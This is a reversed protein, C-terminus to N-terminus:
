RSVPRGVDVIDPEGELILRILCSDTAGVGELESRWSGGVFREVRLTAWEAAEVALERTPAVAIIEPSRRKLIRALSQWLPAADILMFRDPWILEPLDNGRRGNCRAHALRLNTPETPGGRSRPVVHDVTAREASGVLADPDIPLECLWCEWGDRAALDEVRTM